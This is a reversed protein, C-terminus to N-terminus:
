GKRKILTLVDWFILIIFIIYLLYTTGCFYFFPAPMPGPSVNADWITKLLTILLISIILLIIRFYIIDKNSIRKVM